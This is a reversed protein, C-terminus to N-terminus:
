KKEKVEGDEIIFSCEKGQSVRELFIQADADEAMKAVMGLNKTDLLSGERILLIRLEPNMALGIAVSIRIRQATSCQIFPLEEFTVGDDDIGLGKIPFKAKALTKAKDSEIKAMKTNLSGSQKRLEVLELNIADYAKNERIKTNTSEAGAMEASIAEADIMEEANELAKQRKEVDARLSKVLGEVRKLEDTRAKLENYVIEIKRNHRIASAYKEGLDVVSVEKDSVGEHRTMADLNAKIEKGRRNIDTRESFLHKHRVNVKDFNLGVLQKLVESQRKADMNSFELPDFALEGVLKDLMAQPSAFTAGDKNKVTLNTGKATFTRTVIIDGMDLVIRAKDQGARIPKPPLAGAGGLAYEFCDLVCSKGAANDGGIIILSGDPEIRVVKLHKVNEAELCIIKM